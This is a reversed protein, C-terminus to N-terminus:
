KGGMQRLVWDAYKKQEKTIKGASPDGSIIRGLITHKIHVPEAGGYETDFFSEEQEKTINFTPEIKNERLWLRVAENKAVLSREDDTLQTFPNIVINNDDSAYGGIHTNLRFYNLEDDSPERIPYGYVTDM